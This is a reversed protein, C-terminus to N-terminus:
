TESRLTAIQENNEQTIESGRHVSTVAAAIKKIAGKVTGKKITMFVQEEKLPTLDNGTNAVLMLIGDDVLQRTKSGPHLLRHRLVTGTVDQVSGNEQREQVNEDMLLVTRIGHEHYNLVTTEEVTTLFVKVEGPTCILCVPGGTKKIQLSFMKAQAATDELVIWGLM